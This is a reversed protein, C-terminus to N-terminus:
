VPFKFSVTYKVTITVGHCVGVNAPIIIIFDPQSYLLFRIDHEGISVSLQALVPYYQLPRIDYRIGISVTPPVHPIKIRINVLFASIANASLVSFKSVRDGDFHMM